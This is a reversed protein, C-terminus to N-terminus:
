DEISFFYLPINKPIKDVMNALEPDGIRNKEINDFAKTLAEQVTDNIIELLEQPNMITSYETLNYWFLTTSHRTMTQGIKIEPYELDKDIHDINNCNKPFEPIKTRLDPAYFSGTDKLSLPRFLNKMIVKSESKKNEYEIRVYSDFLFKDGQELKEKDNKKTEELFILPFKVKSFFKTVILQYNSPHDLLPNKYEFTESSNHFTLNLYLNNIDFDKNIQFEGTLM